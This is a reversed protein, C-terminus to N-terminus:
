YRLHLRDASFIVPGAFAARISALVADHQKEVAPSLHNLLVQGAGAAQAVEGIGKPPTHLAYLQAPSGPPDLVVSNFVLLDSGKALASLAALGEKDIDGSFTISRGHYDVRYIVAPADRHHGAIASIRLGDEDILVQPAKKKDDTAIDSTKFSLPAAFSILYAFAGQAGFLLDIFRSTSPYPAAAGPGFIRYNLPKGASVAGAKVLGALGATHDAHLHTLLVIDLDRLALKEEGARVFAGPGADVLIRAKGDLLLAFSSAARGTAGPGGSGLVVLELAPPTAPATASTQANVPAFTAFTAFTGLWAPLRIAINNM